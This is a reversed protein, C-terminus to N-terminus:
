LDTLVHGLVLLDVLDGEGARGLNPAGDHPRSGRVDLLYRQLQAALGGVDDELVGVDVSRDRSGTDVTVVRDPHVTQAALGDLVAPLWREGDHSVLLATVCPRM